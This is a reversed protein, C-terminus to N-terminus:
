CFWDIESKVKKERSFIVIILNYPFFSGIVFVIM